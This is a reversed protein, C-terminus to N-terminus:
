EGTSLASPRSARDRAAGSDERFRVITSQSATALLTGDDAWLHVEGHGFGNRVAHVRIDLLVWRTPVLRGVRVTNDLSNGGAMVGLAQGIGFPVYDGLIALTAASMDLGDPIRAWLASRGGPQGRGPLEEARRGSALRMDFRDTISNRAALRSVRPGCEEPSPVRPREVWQGEADFPRDGLAANVTLIERDGVRGVARAQSVQRGAVAITVDLDMISPPNAYSLYQATAWVAPRASSREMAAIAAGLGCGGFLFGEVTAIGATIPLTWRMPDHTSELGLWETADVTRSGVRPRFEDRGLRGTPGQSASTRSAVTHRVVAMARCRLSPSDCRRLQIMQM